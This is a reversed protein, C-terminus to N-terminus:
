KVLVEGEFEATVIFRRLATGVPYSTQLTLTRKGNGPDALVSLDSPVVVRTATASYAYANGDHDTVYIKAGLEIDPLTAFVTKYDGPAWPFDSSHGFFYANGVGGPEATGPFHVVGSRLAIKYAAQTRTAAEVVPADIGLSPIRLRDPTGALELLYPDAGTEPAPEVVPPSIRQQIRKAFFGANALVFLATVGLLIVGSLLLRRDRVIPTARKESSIAPAPSQAAPTVKKTPVGKVAPNATAKKPATKKM